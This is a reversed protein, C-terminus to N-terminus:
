GLWARRCESGQHMLHHIFKLEGFRLGELLLISMRQPCGDGIDFLRGLRLQRAHVNLWWFDPIVAVTELLAGYM